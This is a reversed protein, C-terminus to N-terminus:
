SHQTSSGIMNIVGILPIVRIGSPLIVLLDFVSRSRGLTSSVTWPLSMLIKGTVVGGSVPPITISWSGLVPNPGENPYDDWGQNYDVGTCGDTGNVSVMRARIDSFAQAGTLDFPLGTTQNTVTVTLSRDEGSRINLTVNQAAM